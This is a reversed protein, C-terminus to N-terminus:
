CGPEREEYVAEWSVFHPMEKKRGPKIGPRESVDDVMPEWLFSEGVLSRWPMWCTSGGCRADGSRARVVVSTNLDTEQAERQGFPISDADLQVTVEPVFPIRLKITEVANLICENRVELVVKRGKWGAVRVITGVIHADYTDYLEPDEEPAVYWAPSTALIRIRMGLRLPKEPPITTSYSHKKSALFCTPRSRGGSVGAWRAFVLVPDVAYRSVPISGGTAGTSAQKLLIIGDM